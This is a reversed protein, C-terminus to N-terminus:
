KSGVCRRILSLAIGHFHPPINQPLPVFIELASFRQKPLSGVLRWDLPAFSFQSPAYVSGCIVFLALLPQLLGYSARSMKLRASLRLQYKIRGLFTLGNPSLLAPSVGTFVCPLGGTGTTYKQSPPHHRSREDPQQGLREDRRPM